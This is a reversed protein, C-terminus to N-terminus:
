ADIGLEKLHKAMRERVDALEVEIAVVEKQVAAVDIEAEPEFTDVYRPINLNYDNDAIEKATAKYSYKDIVKRKRHTEVIKDIHAEELVNQTKVATYERSADIFLVEKRKENAGSQERSRDFVLIAVPIGTTTFLNSPLGIVADLLNEDILRKRIEGESGGRFLVGHPVIVAVRGTQRKAIEVM